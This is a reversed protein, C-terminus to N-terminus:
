LFIMIILLIVILIAYITLQRVESKFNENTM